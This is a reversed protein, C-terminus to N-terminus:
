PRAHTWGSELRFGGVLVGYEDFRPDVARGRMVVECWRRAMWRRPWSARCTGEQTHVKAFWWGDVSPEEPCKLLDVEAHMGTGNYMEMYNCGPRRMGCVSYEWRFPRLRTFGKRRRM